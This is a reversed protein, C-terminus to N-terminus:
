NFIVTLDLKKQKVTLYGLTNVMNNEVRKILQDQIHCVIWRWVVLLTLVLVMHIFNKVQKM